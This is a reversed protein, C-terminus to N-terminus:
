GGGMVGRGRRVGNVHAGVISKKAGVVIRYWRLRLNNNKGSALNRSNARLECVVIQEQLM